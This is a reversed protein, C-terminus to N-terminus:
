FGAEGNDVATCFMRKHSRITSPSESSLDRIECRYSIGPRDNEYEGGLYVVPLEMVNIQAKTLLVQSSTKIYPNELPRPYDIVCTGTVACNASLSNYKDNASPPDAKLPKLVPTGEDRDVTSNYNPPGLVQSFGLTSIMMAIVILLVPKKM